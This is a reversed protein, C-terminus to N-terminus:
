VSKKRHKSAYLRSDALKLLEAPQENETSSAIGYSIRAELSVGKFQLPRKLFESEMRALLGAADALATQPLLLVFEDGALRTVLDTQRSMKSLGAALYQLLADGVIM